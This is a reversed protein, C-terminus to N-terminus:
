PRPKAKLIVQNDKVVVGFEVGSSKYQAMIKPAQQQITRLLRAYTADDSKEGVLERAKVYKQYLNKVDADSM